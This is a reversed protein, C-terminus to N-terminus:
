AHQLNNIAKMERRGALTDAPALSNFDADLRGVILRNGNAIEIVSYDNAGEVLTQGMSRADALRGAFVIYESKNLFKM